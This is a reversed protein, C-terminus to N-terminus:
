AARPPRSGARPRRCQAPLSSDAVGQLGPLPIGEDQTLGDRSQVAARRRHPHQSQGRDWAFLANEGEEPFWWGHGVSVVRPDIGTDLTAKQTIRGRPSEIFVPDGEAIGLAAATDPHISVQPEPKSKRIESLYRDQSHVYEAEHTNTLVLPYQALM